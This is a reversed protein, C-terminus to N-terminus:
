NPPPPPADDGSSPAAGNGFSGNEGTNSATEGAALIQAGDPPPPPMNDDYAPIPLNQQQINTPTQAALYVGLFFLGAGLLVLLIVAAILAINGKSKPAAEGSITNDM